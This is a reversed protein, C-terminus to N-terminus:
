SIAIREWVESTVLENGSDMHLAHQAKEVVGKMGIMDLQSRKIAPLDLLVNFAISNM